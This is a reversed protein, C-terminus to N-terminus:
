VLGRTHMHGSHYLLPAKDAHHTCREVQGIFLLHDGEEHQRLNRCEFVAACGDLLPVGHASDQYTTHSFRDAGKRAFLEALPKQAASLVHVAYHASHRFVPLSNAKLGLSWLVLSPALSLANFSSVTTGVAHGEASRATIITVGTAFQGLADRFERQSFPEATRLVSTPLASNVVFCSCLIAAV